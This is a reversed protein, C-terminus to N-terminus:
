YGFEGIMNQCTPHASEFYSSGDPKKRSLVEGYGYPYISEFRMIFNRRAWQLNVDKTGETLKVLATTLCWGDQDHEELQKAAKDIIKTLLFNEACNLKKRGAIKFACVLQWQRFVFANWALKKDTRRNDYYYFHSRAYDLVEWARHPQYTMYFWLALYLLDDPGILKQQHHVPHRAYLGKRIMCRQLAMNIKEIESSVPVGDHMENVIHWGMEVTFRIPNESISPGDLQKSPHCLDWYDLYDRYDALGM